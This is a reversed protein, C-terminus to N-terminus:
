RQYRRDLRLRALVFWPVSHYLTDLHRHSSLHCLGRLFLNSINFEEAFVKRDM